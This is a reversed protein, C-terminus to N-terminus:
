LKCRKLWIFLQTIDQLHYTGLDHYIAWRTGLSNAHTSRLSATAVHEVTLFQNSFERIFQKFTTQYVAILTLMCKKLLCFQNVPTWMAKM